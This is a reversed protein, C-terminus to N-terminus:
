VSLIWTKKGCDWVRKFGLSDAYEKETINNKKHFETKKMSQKTKIDIGNTYFYDAKLEKILKFGLKAYVNGLSYRNDSWSYITTLNFYKIAYKLLKSAGGIVTIGDKSCFRNLTIKSNDRPHLSFTMVSVLENNYYLGVAYKPSKKLEQIHHQNIFIKATKPDIIQIECKRAYIKDNLGLISKLHNKIQAKRNKWENSFITILQIGQKQCELFKWYHSVQRDETHWYLGCYEIGINKEKNYLDIEKGNLKIRDKNFNFGLKLLYNKLEIENKSTRLQNIRYTKRIEPNQIPYDFGYKKRNTLKIKEKVWSQNQSEKSIIAPDVFNTYEPGHKGKENSYCRLWPKYKLIAWNYFNEYNHWDESVTHKRFMDSWIGYLKHETMFKPYKTKFLRKTTYKKPLCGCSKRNMSQSLKLRSLNIKKGCFCQCECIEGNKIVTFCGFKKGTWDKLKRINKNKNREILKQSRTCGCSKTQGYKICNYNLEKQNGCFCLVTATKGNVKLIKLNQNM